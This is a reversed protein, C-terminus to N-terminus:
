ERMGPVISAAGMVGAQEGLGAPYLHIGDGQYVPMVMRHLPERINELLFEGQGTIAGALLFHRSNLTHTLNALGIAIREGYLAVIEKALSDGGRAQAFLERPNEIWLGPAGQERMLLKLGSVSAYNEWCGRNGCSCPLGGMAIIHHGFGGAYGDDGAFIAGNRIICGGIGTGLAVCILNAMGQAAGQWQEGLAIAHVDNVVVCPLGFEQELLKRLPTGTWGPLHETAYAVTGFSDVTGATGVGIGLLPWGEQEATRRHDAILRFLKSLLAERGQGAETPVTHFHEVSGDTGVLASKIGTGGLDIAIAYRQRSM